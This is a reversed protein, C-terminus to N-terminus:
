VCRFVKTHCQIGLQAQLCVDLFFAFLQSWLVLFHISEHSSSRGKRYVILQHQVFLYQLRHPGVAYLQPSGRFLAVSVDNLSKLVLYKSIYKIYRPIDSVGVEMPVKLHLHNRIFNSLESLLMFSPKEVVDVDFRNLQEVVTVLAFAKFFFFRKQTPTTIM